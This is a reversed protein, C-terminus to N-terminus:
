KTILIRRGEVKFHVKGTLEILQLIASIDKKRSIFGGLEFDKPASADYIIEVDYWRAVKRMEARFDNSTFSFEGNKWAMEAALDAEKVSLSGTELISQQGPKLLKGEKASVQRVKVSGELLTTKVAADDSYSNINFHTGLVEVVQQDTKVIFPMRKKSDKLMVKAVEFYAEGSLEVRRENGTFRSPYRLTSAANLWIKTGDPLNVQYKGGNPTEIKNMQSQGNQLGEPQDVISYILQGESNKSISVGSEEALQGKGADSLIIERGDSLTLKAIDTGPRISSFQLASDSKRVQYMYLAAGSVILLAAAAAWKILPRSKIPPHEVEVISQVGTSKALRSRLMTDIKNKLDKEETPIVLKSDDFSHYWDDVQQMEAATASHNLYNEIAKLLDESVPM